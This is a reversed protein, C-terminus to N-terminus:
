GKALPRQSVLLNEQNRAEHPFDTTAQYFNRSCGPVLDDHLEVIISTVKKLWQTDTAFLEKEAGEIDIKLLDLTGIKFDTLISNATVAKIDGNQNPDCQFSWTSAGPNSIELSGETPWLAANLTHINSYAKTNAELLAFNDPHPELAIITADPFRQAFDISALGIHAGADVITTPKAAYPLDYHKWLFTDEYVHIDSSRARLSVPQGDKIPLRIHSGAERFHYTLALRLGPVVGLHRIHRLLFLSGRQLKKLQKLLLKV